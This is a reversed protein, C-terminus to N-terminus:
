AAKAAEARHKFAVAYIWEDDNVDISCRWRRPAEGLRDDRWRAQYWGPHNPVAEFVAGHRDLYAMDESAQAIAAARRQVLAIFAPDEKPSIAPINAPFTLSDADATQYSLADM